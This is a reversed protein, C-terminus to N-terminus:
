RCVWEDARKLRLDEAGSALFTAIVAAWTGGTEEAMEPYEDALYAALDAPPEPALSTQCDPYRDQVARWDALAARSLVMGDDLYVLTLAPSAPLSM